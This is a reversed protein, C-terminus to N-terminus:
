NWTRPDLLHADMSECSSFDVLSSHALAHAQALASHIDQLQEVSTPAIIISELWNQQSIFLLSAQLPTLTETRCIEDFKLLDRHQNPTDLRELLLGQLFISRAQYAVSPFNGHEHVFRHDLANVPIQATFDNSFLQRASILEDPSYVSVGIHLTLGQAQALEMQDVVSRREQGSLAFWDHILVCDLQDRKLTTLSATIKEEVTSPESHTGSIKTQVRLSRPALQAIREEANGYSAATDLHHIGLDQMARVLGQVTSDTLQGARNTIGYDLGWQATGVVLRSM